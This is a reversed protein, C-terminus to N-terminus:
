FYLPLQFYFTLLLHTLIAVHWRACYAVVGSPLCDFGVTHLADRATVAPMLLQVFAKQLVRAHRASVRVALEGIELTVGVALAFRVSLGSADDFLKRHDIAAEQQEAVM